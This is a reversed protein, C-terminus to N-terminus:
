IMLAGSLLLGVSLIGLIALIVHYREKNYYVGKKKLDFEKEVFVVFVCGIITGLIAIFDLM